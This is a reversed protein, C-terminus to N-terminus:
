ALVRVGGGHQVPLMAALQGPVIRQMTNMQVVDFLCANLRAGLM